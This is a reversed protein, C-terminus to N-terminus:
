DFDFVEEISMGYTDELMEEFSQGYMAEYTANMQELFADDSLLQPLMMIYMIIIMASIAIGSVSSVIGGLAMGALQQGKRHSLVAFLISLSGFIFPFIITCFSALALIGFTLSAVAFSKNTSKTQPEM